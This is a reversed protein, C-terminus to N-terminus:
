FNFGLEKSPKLTYKEIASSMSEIMGQFINDLQHVFGRTRISLISDYILIGIGVSKGNYSVPYTTLILKKPNDGYTYVKERSLKEGSRIADLIGVGKKGKLYDRDIKLLLQQFTLQGAKEKSIEFFDLTAPTYILSRNVLDYFIFPIKQARKDLKIVTDVAISFAAGSLVEVKEEADLLRKELPKAYARKWEELATNNFANAKVREEILDRRTHVNLCAKITKSVLEKLQPIKSLMGAYKENVQEYKEKLEEIEKKQFDLKEELEYNRKRLRSRSERVFEFRRIRKFAEEPYRFAYWWVGLKQKFDM